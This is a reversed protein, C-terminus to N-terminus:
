HLWLTTLAGAAIPLAYALRPGRGHELTLEPLPRIGMVRWFVLLTWLNSFAKLLYGRLLVVVLAMVGGALGTFLALYIANQPGLWAGFAGLLKVDGAGLGRLAFFPLFLLVAVLWGGASWGLGPLGARVLAFLLGAAAAGFTLRNPLKRTRLDAVSAVIALMIIALTPVNMTMGDNWM